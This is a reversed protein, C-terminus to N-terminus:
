PVETPYAGASGRGNSGILVDARLLERHAAALARLGPSGAEEGMEILYKANFGLRGRAELV